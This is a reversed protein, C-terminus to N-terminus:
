CFGGAAVAVIGPVKVDGACYWCCCVLVGRAIVMLVCCCIM